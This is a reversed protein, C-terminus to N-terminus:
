RVVETITFIQQCLQELLYQRDADGDMSDWADVAANRALRLLEILQSVAEAAEEPTASM